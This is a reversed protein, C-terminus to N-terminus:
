IKSYKARYSRPSLGFETKFRRAFHNPDPYGVEAGIGAIPHDDVILLWSARRLRQLNLYAIPTEGIHTRFLRILHTPTIDCCQSLENLTWARNLNDELLRVANWVIPPYTENAQCPAQQQTNLFRALEGLFMLLHGIQISRVLHPDQDAYQRLEFIHKRCRDLVNETLSLPMVGPQQLSLAATSLLPSLMSDSYLWSLENELVAPNIACVNVGLANCDSMGHWTGPLM